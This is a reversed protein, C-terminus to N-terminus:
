ACYNRIIEPRNHGLHESLIMRVEFDKKKQALTLEKRSPGGNIPADWGTLKKYERQAYAHRLGHLNKLGANQTQKDYLYRQQIYSKKPPILSYGNDGAVQKAFELYHRQEETEIPIMRGRGGKCWSPTLVLYNGKDALHPRIKISEERRLGFVRQLQLSALIYSNTIGRFDPNFIARNFKPKYQRIGISLETNSPVVDPKNLKEALYRIAALRNKVTGTSLNKEQWSLVVARIHKQKLGNVHNLGYGLKVLDEAFRMLIGCRDAKTSESGEKNRTLMVHISHQLRHKTAMDKDFEIINKVAVQM